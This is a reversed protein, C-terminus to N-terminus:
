GHPRAVHLGWKEIFDVLIKEAWGACGDLWEFSMSGGQLLLEEARDLFAQLDKRADARRRRLQQAYKKGHVHKNVHHWNCYVTCPLSSHYHAKPGAKVQMEDIKANGEATQFDATTKTM